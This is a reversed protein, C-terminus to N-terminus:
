QANEVAKRAPRRERWLLHFDSSNYPYFRTSTAGGPLLVIDVRRNHALWDEKAHRRVLKEDKGTPKNPNKEELEKVANRDLNNEKGLAKVEIASEPIGQSLLFEKVIEVRRETLALNYKQSGRVDANGDLRLRASPSAQLYQKFETAFATLRQRESSLLGVNPAAKEPFATPFFVSALTTEVNVETIGSEISGTIHLTATRTESGGCANSAKLTYTVTENVPGNATQQPTVQVTRTGSKDVTGFPDLSITDANSTSWTLTANGQEKVQSGVKHYTVEAPSLTLNAQVTKDVTVTASSTAIGGPGKAEFNYTTTDKPQVDREGSSPVEGLGSIEGEVADTSSWTLKASGGCGIQAASTNIQSTPKAVAVTASAIGAHARPISNLREGEPWNRTVQSGNQKVHVIVRQNAAVTIKGSWLTNAGKVVTLEHTGPPVLLQQKWGFNNNFEDANAIVYEPKKGNLLVAAHDAGEIQIRGWPGSVTGGVPTLTVNLHATKGDEVTVKHEEPKYGYHYLGITHEGPSVNSIIANHNQTQGADGIPTGDLYIYAQNPIARVEVRGGRYCAPSIAVLSIAAAVVVYGLYRNTNM